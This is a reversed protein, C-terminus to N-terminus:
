GIFKDPYENYGSDFIWIYIGKNWCKDTLEDLDLDDFKGIYVVKPYETFPVILNNPLYEFEYQDMEKIIKMVATTDGDNRCYIRGYGKRTFKRMEMKEM